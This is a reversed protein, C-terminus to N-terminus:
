QDSTSTSACITGSGVGMFCAALRFLSFIAQLACTFAGAREQNQIRAVGPTKVLCM